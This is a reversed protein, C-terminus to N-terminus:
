REDGERIDSLCTAGHAKIVAIAEEHLAATHLTGAAQDVLMGVRQRHDAITAQGWLVTRGDGLAFSSALLEATLELKIEKRFDDIAQGLTPYRRRYEVPDSVRLAEKRAENSRRWKTDARYSRQEERRVVARRHETVLDVLLSHLVEQVERTTLHKAAEDAIWEATRDSFEEDLRRIAAEVRWRPTTTVEAIM